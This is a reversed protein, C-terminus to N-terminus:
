VGRAKLASRLDSIEFELQGIEAFLQPSAALLEEGRVLELEVLRGRRLNLQMILSGADHERQRAFVLRM